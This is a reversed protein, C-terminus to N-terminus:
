KGTPDMGPMRVWEALLTPEHLPACADAVRHQDCFLGRTIGRTVVNLRWEPHTAANRCHGQWCFEDAM